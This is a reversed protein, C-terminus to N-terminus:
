VGEPASSEPCFTQEEPDYETWICGGENVWAACGTDLNYDRAAALAPAFSAAVYNEIDKQHNYLALAVKRTRTENALADLQV